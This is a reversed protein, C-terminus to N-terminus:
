QPGEPKAWHCTRNSWQPWIDIFIILFIYIYKPFCLSYLCILFSPWSTRFSHTRLNPGNWTRSVYWGVWVWNWGLLMSRVWPLSACGWLGPNQRDGCLHRFYSHLFHHMQIWALTSCVSSIITRWRFYPPCTAKMQEWGDDFVRLM